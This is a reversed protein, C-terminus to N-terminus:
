AVSQKGALILIWEAELNAKRWGTRDAVRSPSAFQTIIVSASSLKREVVGARLMDVTGQLVEFDAGKINLERWIRIPMDLLCKRRAQGAKRSLSLDLVVDFRRYHSRFEVLLVDSM